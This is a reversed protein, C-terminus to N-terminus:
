RPREPSPRGPRPQRSRWRRAPPTAPTRCPTPTRPDDVVGIAHLERQEDTLAAAVELPGRRYGAGLRM